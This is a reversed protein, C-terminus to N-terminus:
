QEKTLYKYLKLVLEPSSKLHGEAHNCNICLAGRICKGCTNPGECCGHDHDIFVKNKTGCVMCGNKILLEYNEKTLKYRQKINTIKLHYKYDDDLAYREQRYISQYKLECSKCSNRLGHKMLKHRSFEENSKLENCKSCTKM